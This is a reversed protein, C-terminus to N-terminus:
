GSIWLAAQYATFGLSTLLGFLPVALPVRFRRATAEEGAPGEAPGEAPDGRRKLAILAANVLAFVILTIFATIEALRVIPLALAFFLSIGGAFLTALAPTRTARWVRGLRAPLWGLRALGYFIRSAMIIQILAGNAVAFIAILTIPAPNWGSAREYVLALPAQSEALEAPAVATVAVLATLMYLVTTAALTIIIARPMTREVDRVEEAVNVMDEFGIFAYFALVGAALIAPAAAAPPTLAAAMAAPKALADDLGTAIVLALAGVEALTLLAAVTVSEVIGWIALAVLAAILFATMLAAPAEVFVGLYGAFGQAIAASSVLGAAAVMLGVVLPLRDIRLGRQVYVAEGASFPYRAALEGFSLATPAAMLAAALFALPAQAGAIGAVKGVLVFIGAGITTGLGYLALLPLSLSRKLTPGPAAGGPRGTEAEEPTPLVPGIKDPPPTM